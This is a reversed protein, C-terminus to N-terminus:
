PARLGAKLAALTQQAATLTDTLQQAQAPTLNGGVGVASRIATLQDLIDAFYGKTTTGAPPGNPNGFLAKFLVITNADQNNLHTQIDDLTAM